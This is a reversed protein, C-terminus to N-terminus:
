LLTASRWFVSRVQARLAFFKSTREPDDDTVDEIFSWASRLAELAGNDPKSPPDADLLRRIEPVLESIFNVADCGNIDDNYFESEPDTQPFRELIDRLLTMAPTTDTM